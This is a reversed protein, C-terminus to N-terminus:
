NSGFGALVALLRFEGPWASYRNARWGSRRVIGFLTLATPAPGRHRTRRTLRAIRSCCVPSWRRISWHDGSWVKLNDEIVHAATETAADMRAIDDSYGIISM